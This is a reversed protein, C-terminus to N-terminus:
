VSKKPNTGWGKQWFDLNKFFIKQKQPDSRGKKSQMPSNTRFDATLGAPLAGADKKGSLRLPQGSSFVFFPTILREKEARETGDTDCVPLSDCRRASCADKKKAKRPLYTLFVCSRVPYRPFIQNNKL